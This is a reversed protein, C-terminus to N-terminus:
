SGFLTYFTAGDLCQEKKPTILGNEHSFTVLHWNSTFEYTIWVHIWIICVKKKKSLLCSPGNKFMVMVSPFAFQVFTVFHTRIFKNILLRWFTFYNHIVMLNNTRSIASKKKAQGVWYWLFFETFHCNWIIHIM